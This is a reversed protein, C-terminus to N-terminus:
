KDINLSGNEQLFEMQSKMDLPKFVPTNPLPTHIVTINNEKSVYCDVVYNGVLGKCKVAGSPIRDVDFYTSFGIVQKVQYRQCMGNSHSKFEEIFELTAGVLDAWRDLQKRTYFYFLNTGNDAHVIINERRSMDTKEVVSVIPM